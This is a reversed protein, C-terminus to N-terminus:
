TDSTASSMTLGSRRTPRLPRYEAMFATFEEHDHRARRRPRATREHLHCARDGPAQRPTGRRHHLHRCPRWLPDHARPTQDQNTPTPTMRCTVTAALDLLDVTHRARALRARLSGALRARPSGALRGRSSGALRARLRRGFGTCPGGSAPAVLRELHPTRDMGALTPRAKSPVSSGARLGGEAVEHTRSEPGRRGLAIARAILRRVIERAVGSRGRRRIGLRWATRSTPSPYSAMVRVTHSCVNTKLLDRASTVFSACKGWHKGPIPEFVHRSFSM